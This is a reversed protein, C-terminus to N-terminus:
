DVLIRAELEGFRSLFREFLRVAHEVDRSGGTERISHMSLQPNGLDLTRVGLKASLMPGITSGCPSDNRVVFLQLPVKEGPQGPGAEGRGSPPKAAEQVLVIGPSNTAYRQNANIKIVPGANLAPAHNREYKAAYNPHIAHAMDASLLFSTSLTQEFATSSSVDQQSSPSSSSPPIVSLRRLIAPLLNSDAGHASLSGIEEHDFCAVLRISTDADLTSTPSSVSDILGKIACFTMNLNDLRPSFIFEDNLGGICAKQTDYLVLEFDVIQSAQVGAQEAVLTLFAPHHRETMAKLPQYDGEDKGASTEETTSTKNLEAEALGAIPLLEDEKNPNFNSERHLHIALHPIRMIPKDVKVLKQVINGDGDGERVMVRGAVSLDRDFWSHWIGGGYTEVGVQMYGSATRKSIPKVRLCPSDTHAGIMGIPNGPRWRGGVAFAVVSSGNRTLFYKGGPKVASDWNERERIKTFGAAELLAAASAVAHYPTPSANVFDLFELASKPPSMTVSSSSFVRAAVRSRSGLFAFSVSVAPLSSLKKATPISRNALM